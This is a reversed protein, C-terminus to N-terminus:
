VMTGLGNGVPLTHVGLDGEMVRVISLEVESVAGGSQRVSVSYGLVPSSPMVKRMINGAPEWLVTNPLLSPSVYQDSSCVRGGSTPTPLLSHYQSLRESHSDPFWQYGQHPAPLLPLLCGM